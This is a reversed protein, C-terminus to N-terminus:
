APPAETAAAAKAHAAETLLRTVSQVFRNPEAPLIGEALGAQAYVVEIWEALEPSEGAGALRELDKVLAHDGNLELIRKGGAYGPQTAKLLREMHAHHGGEPVVLCAASTTLRKSMKVGEVRDGLVAEFREILTQLAPPPTEDSPKEEGDAAAEAVDLEAGMASTLPLEDFEELAGIAWEDIPDTLLLTEYGRKDLAELHPSAAAAAVSEGIVYYIAKQGEPMRAKYDALSVWGDKERTSRFRLLPALRDKNEPNTHLGEKLVAGFQDWLKAYDEPREKATEDLMDFVRKTLHKKISQVIASDQLLERSVNLPLDDSDVVGRVFRLFTPLLERCDDMIFVRKVYLRVGHQQDNSYLNFPAKGPVFLVSTFLQRGEITFHTRALPPEWDHTLHKYFEAYDDDSLDSKARQWLATGKNVQRWAKEVKPEEGEVPPAYKEEELLIPYGVYDSYRSILSSLQWPSSLAHQDEKLHLTITTGRTARPAPEITFGDRGDSTWLWGDEGGEAPRTLVEVRDAVLFASYFGVGFQGILQPKGASADALAEVFARSGSHAVTGLNKVLEDRTMGIGNDAITVTHAVGDASVRIELADDGRLDHDTLARYRLKDLADSANSVL